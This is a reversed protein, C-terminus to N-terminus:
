VFSMGTEQRKKAPEETQTKGTEGKGGFAKLPPCFGLRGNVMLFLSNEHSNGHNARAIHPQNGAGAKGIETVLDGAHVLVAVLDGRKQAALDRNELGPEVRQHSGIHLGFPQIEGGVQGRRDRFGVRHEDRDARRRPAAITVRIQAVHVGGRALDGRRELAKRHHDGFRGHRDAGAVLDLPQDALDIRRGIHHDGGIRFKQALARRDAIEFEGVTDHDASRVLAPALHEAIDVPRQREVLRRQHERRPAGRLQDFVGGIREEGGLDGEDVLDRIKDSFTPASTCSTARPM